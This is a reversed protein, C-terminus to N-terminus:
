SLSQPKYTTMKININISLIKYEKKEIASQLSVEHSLNRNETYFIKLM